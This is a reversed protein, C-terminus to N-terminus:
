LHAACREVYGNGIVHDAALRDLGEVTLKGGSYALWAGLDHQLNADAQSLPQSGENTMALVRAYLLMGVRYATAENALCAIAPEEDGDMADVDWIAHMLEHALIATRVRLPEHKLGQPVYVRGTSTDFMGLLGPHTVSLSQDPHWDIAAHRDRIMASLRDRLLLGEGGGIQEILTFAERLEPEVNCLSDWPVDGAGCLAVVRSPREAYAVGVPALGPWAVVALLVFLILRLFAARM